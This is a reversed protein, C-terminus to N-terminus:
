GYEKVTGNGVMVDHVNEPVSYVKGPMFEWRQGNIECAAKQTVEMDFMVRPEQWETKKLLTGMPLHDALKQAAKAWSFEQAKPARVQADVWLGSRNEYHYRMLEMLHDLNPEDWRGGM